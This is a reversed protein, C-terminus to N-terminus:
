LSQRLLFKLLDEFKKNEDLKDRADDGRATPALSDNISQSFKMLKNARKQYAQTAKYSYFDNNTNIKVGFYGEVPLMKFNKAPRHVREGDEDEEYCEVDEVM